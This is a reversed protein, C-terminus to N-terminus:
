PHPQWAIFVDENWGLDNLRKRIARMTPHNGDALALTAECALPAWVVLEEGGFRPGAPDEIFSIVPWLQVFM